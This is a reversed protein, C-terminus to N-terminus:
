PPPPWSAPDTLAAVDRSAQLTYTARVYAALAAAYDGVGANRVLAAELAPADDRKLAGAYAELRGYFRSATKMMRRPVSMDGVGDERFGSDISRFFTDTLRQALRRKGPAQELRILALCAHLMLSELRGELTDPFKGEGYLGPRRSAAVIASHAADVEERAGAGGFWGALM